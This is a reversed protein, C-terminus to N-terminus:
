LLWSLGVWIQVRFWGFGVTAVGAYLLTCQHRSPLNFSFCSMCLAHLVLDFRIHFLNIPQIPLVWFVVHFHFFHTEVRIISSHCLVLPFVSGVNNLMYFFISLDQYLMCFLYQQRVIWSIQFCEVLQMAVFQQTGAISWYWCWASTWTRLPCSLLDIWYHLNAPSSGNSWSLDGLAKSITWPPSGSKSTMFNLLEINPSHMMECPCLM